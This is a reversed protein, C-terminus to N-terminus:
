HGFFAAGGYEDIMAFEGVAGAVMQLLIGVNLVRIRQRRLEGFKRLVAGGDREVAGGGGVRQVPQYRARAAFHHAAVIGDTQELGGLVGGLDFARAPRM